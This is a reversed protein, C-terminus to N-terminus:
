LVTGAARARYRGPIWTGQSWHGPIWLGRQARLLFSPRYQEGPERLDLNKLVTASFDATAHPMNRVRDSINLEPLDGLAQSMAAPLLRAQETLIDFFVDRGMGLQDATRALNRSGISRLAYEKGYRMAAKARHYVAHTDYLGHVSILDYLPAFRVQGGALLLSYNKAHADIGAILFNFAIARAFAEIDAEPQSSHARIVRAIDHIAPGGDSQYKRSSPLALAQCFDEQHIRQVVTQSALRDYRTTVFAPVGDFYEIAVQATRLGLARAARMTVFEVAQDDNGHSTIGQMGPKIIHTSATNGTPELWQGDSRALAFKAQQGALSFRPMEGETSPVWARGTAAIGRVRQAIEAESLPVAGHEDSPADGEPLIQVAGPADAGMHRLLTFPDSEVENFHAAWRTRQESDEPLLNEIWPGAVDPGYGVGTLPMSLSLPTSAPDHAYADDYVFEVTRDENRHLQGALNGGLWVNLMAHM